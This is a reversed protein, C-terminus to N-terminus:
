NSHIASSFTEIIKYIEEDPVEGIAVIEYIFAGTQWKVDYVGEETKAFVKLSGISTEIFGESEILSKAGTRSKDINIRDTQNTFSQRVWKDMGKISVVYIGDAAFGEPLYPPTEVAFGAQKEAEAVSEVQHMPNVIGINGDDRNGPLLSSITLIVAIIVVATAAFGIVPRFFPRFMRNKFPKFSFREKDLIQKFKAMTDYIDPVETDGIGKIESARHNYANKLTDELFRDNQKKM